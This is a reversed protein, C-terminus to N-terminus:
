FVLNSLGVKSICGVVLLSVEFKPRFFTRKKNIELSHINKKDESNLRIMNIKPNIKPFLIIRYENTFMIDNSNIGRYPRGYKELM